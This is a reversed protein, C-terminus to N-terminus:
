QVFDIGYVEPFNGVCGDVYIWISKQLVFAISANNYLDRYMLNDTSGGLLKKPIKLYITNTNPPAGTCFPNVPIQQDVQIYFGRAGTLEPPEDRVFIGVVHLTGTTPFIQMAANTPGALMSGLVLAFLSVIRM